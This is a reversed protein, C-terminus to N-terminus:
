VYSKIINIASKLDDSELGLEALNIVIFDGDGLADDILLNSIYEIMKIRGCRSQPFPIDTNELRVLLTIATNKKMKVINDNM